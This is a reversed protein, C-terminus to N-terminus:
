RKVVYIGIMGMAMHGEVHCHYFWTGPKDERFRFRFSEAPGIVRTDIPTGSPDLWRHGHIHFTHFDNGLALVDWQVVDGVRSHFVPTNGVFAHGNITMFGNTSELFVVFEKDPRSEGPGLISLAGYLGGDISAEMEPGHDHYPWVGASDPGAFLEYTFSEGPEVAGGKGSFGPLYSGDSPFDYEVGHFHMTHPRNFKTDLNKFHVVIHDGVRAKILPGPIGDNDGSIYPVDRLPKKWDPTFAKYVVTDFTTQEPPYEEDMIADHGNPVVNWTVPVAAIWYVKTAAHASAPVALALVVALAPLFGGLGRRLFSRAAM